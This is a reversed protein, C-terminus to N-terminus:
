TPVPDGQAKDTGTRQVRPKAAASRTRKPTPVPENEANRRNTDDILEAVAASLQEVQARLARIEDAQDDDRVMAQAIKGPARIVASLVDADARGASGLVQALKDETIDKGTAHDIVQIDVGRRVM